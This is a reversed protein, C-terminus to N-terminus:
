IKRRKCAGEFSWANQVAAGQGTLMMEQHFFDAAIVILLSLTLKRSPNFPQWELNATKQLNYITKPISRMVDLLSM